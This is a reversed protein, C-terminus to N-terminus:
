EQKYIENIIQILRFYEDSKESIKIELQAPEYDYWDAGYEKLIRNKLVQLRKEIIPVLYSVHHKRLDLYM